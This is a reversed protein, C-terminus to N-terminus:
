ASTSLYRNSASMLAGVFHPDFGRTRYNRNQVTIRFYELKWMLANFDSGSFMKLRPPLGM